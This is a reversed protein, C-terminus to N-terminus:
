RKESKHKKPEEEGLNSPKKTWKWDSLSLIPADFSNERRMSITRTRTSSPLSAFDSNHRPLLGVLPARKKKRYRIEAEKVWCVDCVRVPTKHYALRPITIENSSCEYCFLGGCARCHHRRRFLIHFERKCAMCAKVEEDGVWEPRKSLEEDETQEKNSHSPEQHLDLFTKEFHSNPLAMSYHVDFSIVTHSRTIPLSRHQRISRRSPSSSPVPVHHHHQTSSPSTGCCRHFAAEDHYNSPSSSPPSPSQMTAPTSTRRKVVVEAFTM